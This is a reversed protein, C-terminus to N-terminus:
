EKRGLELWSRMSPAIRRLNILVDKDGGPEDTNKYCYFKVITMEKSKGPHSSVCVGKAQTKYVVLSAKSVICNWRTSIENTFNKCRKCICM